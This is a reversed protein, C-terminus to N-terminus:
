EPFLKKIYDLITILKENKLVLADGDALFIREVRKYYKRAMDFDELVENIDRVRFKKDKFM